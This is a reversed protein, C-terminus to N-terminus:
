LSNWQHPVAKREIYIRANNGENFITAPEAHVPLVPYRMEVYLAGM